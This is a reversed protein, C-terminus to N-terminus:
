TGEKAIKIVGGFVSPSVDKPELDGIKGSLIEYNEDADDFACDGRRSHRACFMRIRVENLERNWEHPNDRSFEKKIRYTVTAKERCGEQDCLDEEGAFYGKGEDLAHYYEAMLFGCATEVNRVSAEHVIRGKHLFQISASIRWEDGSMGSTKYRPVTLIRVEDFAQADPRLARNVSSGLPSM